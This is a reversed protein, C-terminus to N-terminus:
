RNKHLRLIWFCSPIYQEFYFIFLSLWSGWGGATFWVHHAWRQGAASAPLQGWGRVWCQCSFLTHIHSFVGWTYTQVCHPPGSPVAAGAMTSDIQPIHATSPLSSRIGSGSDLRTLDGACVPQQCWVRGVGLSPPLAFMRVSDQKWLYWRQTWPAHSCLVIVEKSTVSRLHLKELSSKRSESFRKLGSFIM